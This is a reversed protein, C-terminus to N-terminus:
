FRAASVESHRSDRTLQLGAPWASGFPCGVVPIGSSSRRASRVVWRVIWSHRAARACAFRQLLEGCNESRHAPPRAEGGSPGATYRTCVGGSRFVGDVRRMSFLSCARSM